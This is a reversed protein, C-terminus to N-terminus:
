TSQPRTQPNVDGIQNIALMQASNVEDLLRFLPGNPDNTELLIRALAIMASNSRRLNGAALTLLAFDSTPLM